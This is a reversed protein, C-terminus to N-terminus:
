TALRHRGLLAEIQSRNREIAERAIRRMKDILAPDIPSPRPIREAPRWLEREARHHRAPKPYERKGFDVGATLVPIFIINTTQPGANM